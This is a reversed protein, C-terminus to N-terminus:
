IKDSTFRKWLSKQEDSAEENKILKSEEAAASSGKRTDPLPGKREYIIGSPILYKNMMFPSSNFVLAEEMVHM